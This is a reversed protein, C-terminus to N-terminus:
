FHGEGHPDLGGDLVYKRLSVRNWMGFPMEILEAKKCTQRDNCVSWAVGDTATPQM